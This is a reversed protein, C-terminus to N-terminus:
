ASDREKRLSAIRDSDLVNQQCRRAISTALKDILFEYASQRDHYFSSYDSSLSERKERGKNVGAFFVFSKSVRIAERERVDHMHPRAEWITM